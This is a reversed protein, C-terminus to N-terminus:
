DMLHIKELMYVFLRKKEVVIKVECLMGPKLKIRELNINDISTNIKYVGETENMNAKLDSSIFQVKGSVTGYESAPYAAIEYKVEMEKVIKGIDENSVYATINYSEKGNEPLLILAVTEASLYNGVTIEALVNVTGSITARVTAKEINSTLTEIQTKYQELQLNHDSKEATVLQIEDIHIKTITEDKITTTDENEHEVQAQELAFLSNDSAKISAEIGAITEKELTELANQRAESYQSLNSNLNSIQSEQQVKSAGLAELEREMKDLESIREEPYNSQAESINIYANRLASIKEQIAQINATIESLVAEASEIEQQAKIIQSDYQQVLSNYQAIYEEVKSYFYVENSYFSNYRLQIAEILQFHKRIEEQHYEISNSNLGLELDKRKVLINNESNVSQVAAEIKKKRSIYEEYYKNSEFSKLDVESDDLWSLYADIMETKEKINDYQEKYGKLQVTQEETDIVFLVDGEVVVAGDEIYCEEITGGISNTITSKADSTTVTGKAKVLIDIKFFYMWAVLFIILLLVIYLLLSFIPKPRSEYVETSESLDEIEFIVPKM